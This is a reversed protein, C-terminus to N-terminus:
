LKLTGDEARDSSYAVLEHREDRRLEGSALDATGHTAVPMRFLGRLAGRAEENLRAIPIM